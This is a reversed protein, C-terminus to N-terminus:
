ERVIVTIGYPCNHYIWSADDVSLRVCGHSARHGLQSVTGRRLSSNSPSSYIVSHFLYGGVIGFAWKAYCDFKKFYYWEDSLPGYAQFTGILTPNSRTGTSCKMTKILDSYDTGTWEYVYVRQDSVDVILKYPFVYDDSKNVDASYLITQTAEDAIGSQPIGNRYQFYRLARETNGGFSGDTGSYLYGLSALRRQVRLVEEGSDGSRVERRFVNFEGSLMYTFLSDTVTATPSFTDEIEAIRVDHVVPMEGATLIVEPEEPEILALEKSDMYMEDLGNNHLYTKYDKVAQETAKGFVGDASGKLFGWEILLKQAAIVDRNEESDANFTQKPRPKAVIADSYSYLLSQTYYDAVGTVALGNNAQFEKLADETAKDFTGSPSADLYEYLRLHVQLYYVHLEDDDDRSGLSLTKYVSEDVVEIEPVSEAAAFSCLLSLILCCSLFVKFRM